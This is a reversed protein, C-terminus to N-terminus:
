AGGKDIVLILLSRPGHVGICLRCEIDATRSPGSIFSVQPAPVSNRSLHENLIQSIAEANAVINGADVVAACIPPLISALKEFDNQHLGVLTGTEAIGYDCHVVGLDARDLEKFEAAVAPSHIVKKGASLKAIFEAAQEPSSFKEVTAGLAAARDIFRQVLERNVPSSVM